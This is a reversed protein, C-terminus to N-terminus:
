ITTSTVDTGATTECSSADGETDQERSESTRRDVNTGAGQHHQQEGGNSDPSWPEDVEPRGQHGQAQCREKEVGM